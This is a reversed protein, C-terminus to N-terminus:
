RLISPTDNFFDSNTKEGTLLMEIFLKFEPKMTLDFTTPKLCLGYKDDSIYTNGNADTWKTTPQNDNYCALLKGSESTRWFSEDTFEDVSKFKNEGSKKPLGAITCQIGDDTRDVYRKAGLTRFEYCDDEREMIGLRKIKGKSTTATYLEKDFGLDNAVQAQLKEINKNYTEVFQLDKKNFIGKISDTDCYVIHEDLKLIFEWLCHRAWATVWVGHQYAIFTQMPKTKDMEKYFDDDSIDVVDWGDETFIVDKSILKTVACGYISNIFQKSEVYLSESEEIGKLSTKYKFYDLITLILERSLYGAPAAYLMECVPEDCKYAQRFTDYDLDTMWITMSDCKSIRGNDVVPNVITKDVVKSLSWYTNLKVREVNTFTFRGFWREDATMVDMNKYMPWMSPDVLDFDGIPFKRTTMVAPYSSAFDFCKVNYKTEDVYKANAHTWGGQFVQVLANYLEVNYNKQTTCCQECWDRDKEWLRDRCIKRVTGTQTLPIDQLTGYKNRYKEIGYIMSLVDNIAYKIREDELPTNPTIIGEYFEENEDLKQIPLKEDKTWSKLSKQTLVLTDRLEFLVKNRSLKCKMPKKAERAFVKKKMAFDKNYLNRLHQYEFGLNHIYMFAGVSKSSKLALATEVARNYTTFGYVGQRRIEGSLTEMFLEFEGWTRGIFVYPTGDKSEICCQWMYMLSVPECHNDILDQYARETEPLDFESDYREKDFALVTGDEMAYGNSTEIDFTIINQAIHSSIKGRFIKPVFWFEINMLDKPDNPKTINLVNIM